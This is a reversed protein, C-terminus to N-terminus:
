MTSGRQDRIRETNFCTARYPLCEEARRFVPSHPACPTDHGVVPMRPPLISFSEPGNTNM